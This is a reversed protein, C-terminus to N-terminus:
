FRLYKQYYLSPSDKQLTRCVVLYILKYPSFYFTTLERINDTIEAHRNNNDFRNRRGGV